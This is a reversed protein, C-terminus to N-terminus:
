QPPHHLYAVTCSTSTSVAATELDGRLWTNQPSGVGCGGIQACNSNLAVVHWDGIDYSYYGESPHGASEGFYAFYGAAGPTNYEHNGPSPNTWDFHRGWTPDYCDQFQVLTGDPYAGDSPSLLMSTVGAAEFGPDVSHLRWISKLMLGAGTILVVSVAIEAVILAGNLRQGGRSSATRPGANLQRARGPSAARWAPLLGVLIGVLLSAALSVTAVSGDISVEEARPIGAPALGGLIADLGAVALLGAAGGILGLTATETLVQRALRWRSAGLSRRIAVEDARGGARALLLSLLNCCAVLLVFGAAASVLLLPRRVNGVTAEQLTVVGAAAVEVEAILDPDEARLAATM